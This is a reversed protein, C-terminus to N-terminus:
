VKGVMRRNRVRRRIAWILLVICLIIAAAGVCSGKGDAIGSLHSMGIIAGLHNSVTDAERKIM